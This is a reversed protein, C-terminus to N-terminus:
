RKKRFTERISNFFADSYGPRLTELAVSLLLSVAIISSFVNSGGYSIFPAPMGKTPASGSIVALNILAQLQIAMTLGFALLMGLKSRAAIAIRVAFYGWLLYLLIILLIASFGLEEGVVSLIFDTHQEPLYKTKLRSEGFGLGFWGGSGLALFSRLLQYGEKLPNAEPDLFNTVRKLRVPSCLLTVVFAVGGFILGALCYRLYLGAALMILGATTFILITTGMDEGLAVLGCTLLIYFALPLVGNKHKFLSFTRSFFTCYSAVFLCMAIKAFESPQLAVTGLGPFPFRIWRYAGNYPKFFLAAVLLLWCIPLLFGRLKCIRQYGAAIVAAGAAFGAFIWLLQKQFYVIGKLTFSASYLMTLGFFLLIITVVTLGLASVASDPLKEELEPLRPSEKANNFPLRMM